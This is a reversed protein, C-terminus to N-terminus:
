SHKKSGFYKLFVMTSINNGIGNDKTFKYKDLYIWFEFRRRSDKMIRLTLADNKSVIQVIIEKEEPRSHEPTANGIKKLENIVRNTYESDQEEDNIKLVLGPQNLLNIIEKKVLTELSFALTFSVLFNFALMGMLTIGITKTKKRQMTENSISYTFFFFGIIGLLFSPVIIWKHWFSTLVDLFETM